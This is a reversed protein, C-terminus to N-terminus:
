FKEQPIYRNFQETALSNEIICSYVSDVKAAIKKLKRKNEWDTAIYINYPDDSHELKKSRIYSMMIGFTFFAFFGVILLIYIVQLKDDKKNVETSNVSQNQHKQLFDYLLSDLLTENVVM